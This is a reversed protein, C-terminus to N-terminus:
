ADLDQRSQPSESTVRNLHHCGPGKYKLAIVAEPLKFINEFGLIGLILGLEARAKNEQKRLGAHRPATNTVVKRIKGPKCSSVM